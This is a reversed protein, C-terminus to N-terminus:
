ALHNSVAKMEVSQEEIPYVWSFAEEVTKQCLTWVSMELSM